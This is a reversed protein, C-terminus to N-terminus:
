NKFDNVFRKYTVNLGAGSRKIQIDMEHTQALAMLESLKHRNLTGFYSFRLEEIREGEKLASFKTESLFALGYLSKELNEM